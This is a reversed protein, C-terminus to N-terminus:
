SLIPGSIFYLTERHIITWRRLKTVCAITRECFDKTGYVITWKTRGHKSISQNGFIKQEAPLQGGGQGAM